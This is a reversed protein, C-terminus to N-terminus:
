KNSLVMTDLQMSRKWKAVMAKYEASKPGMKLKHSAGQEVVQIFFHKLQREAVKLERMLNTISRYARAAESFYTLAARTQTMYVRCVAAARANEDPHAVSSKTNMIEHGIMEVTHNLEKVKRAPDLSGLKRHISQYAAGLVKVADAVGQLKEPRYEAKEEPHTAINFQKIADQIVKVAGEPIARAEVDLKSLGVKKARALDQVFSKEYSAVDTIATEMSSAVQKALTDVQTSFDVSSNKAILSAALHSKIDLHEAYKEVLEPISAPPAVPAEEAKQSSTPHDQAPDKIQPKHDISPTKPEAETPKEEGPKSAAEKQGEEVLKVLEVAVSSAEETAKTAEEVTDENPKDSGLGLWALLKQIWEGIKAFFAKISAWVGEEAEELAIKCDQSNDFHHKTFSGKAVGVLRDAELAMGLTLTKDKISAGISLLLDVSGELALAEQEVRDVILSTM